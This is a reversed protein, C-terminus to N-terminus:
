WNDRPEEINRHFHSSIFGSQKNAAEIYKIQDDNLSHKKDMYSDYIIFLGLAGIATWTIILKLDEM